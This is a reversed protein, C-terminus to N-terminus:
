EDSESEDGDPENDGNKDEGVKGLCTVYQFKGGDVKLRSSSIVCENHRETLEVLLKPSICFTHAPGNYKMKKVETYWGSIGEGRIRLKGPRLEVTVHNDESNESSFVDAKDAAEGLGKPLVAPAADTVELLPALDPYNEVYRRCSLVLGSPNRFHMWTDTESFETVGLSIINKIAERRVLAPTVFGTKVKYRTVQSGDCAEVWKSHLHLCTTYFKSADTGACEQVIQVADIFDEHLPFWKKPKEVTEIPLMIETDMRIGAGRRKGMLRLVGDNVSLDIEEEGLKRLMAFFPAAPVAGTIGLKCKKRCATEDNYTFVEGDKFVFCSSQAIIDRTSLGAQVSELDQLLDERKVRKM